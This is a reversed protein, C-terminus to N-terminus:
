MVCVCLCVSMPPRQQPKYICHMRNVTVHWAANCICTIVQPPQEHLHVRIVHLSHEHVHHSEHLLSTALLLNSRNDYLLYKAPAQHLLMSIAM